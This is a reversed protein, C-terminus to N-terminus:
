HERRPQNESAVDLIFVHALVVKGRKGTTMEAMRISTMLGFGAQMQPWTAQDIIGINILGWQPSQSMKTCEGVNLCLLSVGWLRKRYQRRQPCLKVIVGPSQTWWISEMWGCTAEHKRGAVPIRVSQAGVLWTCSLRTSVQGERRCKSRDCCVGLVCATLVGCAPSVANDKTWHETTIFPNYWSDYKGCKLAAIFNSAM